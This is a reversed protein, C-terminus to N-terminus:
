NHCIETYCASAPEGDMDFLVYEVKSRPNRITEETMDIHTLLQLVRFHRRLASNFADLQALGVNKMVVLHDVHFFM